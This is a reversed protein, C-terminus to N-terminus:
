ECNDMVPARMVLHILQEPTTEVGRLVDVHVEMRTPGVISALLVDLLAMRQSATLVLRFHTELPPDLRPRARDCLACRDADWWEGCDHAAGGAVEARLQALFEPDLGIFTGGRERINKLFVTRYDPATIGFNFRPFVDVVGCACCLVMFRTHGGNPTPATVDTCDDFVHEHASM